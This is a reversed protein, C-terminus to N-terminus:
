NAPGFGYRSFVDQSAESFLFDIFLASATNQTGEATMAVPYLVQTPTPVTLQVSVKDAMLAADTAYVLGADVENRAVYDLSQRVNQTRIIKGQLPEWLQLAILAERSYRGVPVSEPNSVAVREFVPQRLDGFQQIPKGATPTILVLSNSVFDRRSDAALLGQQEAQDMTAQDASAFVDVPAGRIIQQLLVGSGAFNLQVQHEPNAQEFLGALEKFVNSLSAAASVTIDQAQALPLWLALLTTLLLKRM